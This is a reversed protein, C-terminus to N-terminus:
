NMEEKAVVIELWGTVFQEGLENQCRVSSRIAEDDRVKGTLNYPLPRVILRGPHLSVPEATLVTFAWLRSDLIPNGFVVVDLAEPKTVRLDAAFSGRLWIVPPPDFLEQVWVAFGELHEALRQREESGQGLVAQVERLASLWPEHVVKEDVQYKVAGPRLVGDEFLDILAV